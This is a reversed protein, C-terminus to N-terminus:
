KWQSWRLQLQWCWGLVHGRQVQGSCWGLVSQSCSRRGGCCNREHYKLVDLGPLVSISFSLLFPFIFCKASYESSWFSRLASPKSQNLPAICDPEAIFLQWTNSTGRVSSFTIAMAEDRKLIVSYRFSHKAASLFRVPSSANPVFQWRYGLGAETLDSADDWVEFLLGRNGLFNFYFHEWCCGVFVGSCMSSDTTYPPLGPCFLKIIFQSQLHVSSGVLSVPSSKSSTSFQGM